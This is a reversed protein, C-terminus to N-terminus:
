CCVIAAVLRVAQKNNWDLQALLLGAHFQWKKKPAVVTRM